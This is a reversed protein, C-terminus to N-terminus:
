PTVEHSTCHRSDSDWFGAAGPLPEGALCTGLRPHAFRQFNRCDGCRVRGSILVAGSGRCDVCDPLGGCPCATTLALAPEARSRALYYDRTESERECALLVEAIADPDAEGILALWDLVDNREDPDMPRAPPEPTSDDPLWAVADPYEAQMQALTAPPTCSVRIVRGDAHHIM